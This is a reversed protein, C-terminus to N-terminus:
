CRRCCCQIPQSPHMMVATPKTTSPSSSASRCHQAQWDQCKGPVQRVRRTTCPRARSLDTHLTFSRPFWCRCFLMGCSFTAASVPINYQASRGCAGLNRREEGTRLFRKMRLQSSKKGNRLPEEAAAARVHPPSSAPGCHAGRRCLRRTM